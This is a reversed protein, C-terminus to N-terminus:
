AAAYGDSRTSGVRPTDPRTFRRVMDVSMPLRTTGALGHMGCKGNHEWDDAGALSPSFAELEFGRERCMEAAVLLAQALDRDQSVLLPRRLGLGVARLLESALRVDVGQEHPRSAGSAPDIQYQLPISTVQAGCRQLWKIRKAMAEYAQPDRKRAHIGTVVHIGKVTLGHEAAFAHLLNPIHVQTAAVKCNEKLFYHFNQLDVFAVVDDPSFMLTPLSSPALQVTSDRAREALLRILSSRVMDTFPRNFM